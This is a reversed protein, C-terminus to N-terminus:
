AIAAAATAAQEAITGPSELLEQVEPQALGPEPVLQLHREGTRHRVLTGWDTRTWGYHVCLIKIARGQSVVLESECRSDPRPNEQWGRPVTERPPEGPLRPGVPIAAPVIQSAVERELKDTVAQLQFVMTRLLDIEEAAERLYSAIVPQGVHDGEGALKRLRGCLSARRRKVASRASDPVIIGNQQLNSNSM